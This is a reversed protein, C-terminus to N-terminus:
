TSPALLANLLHALRYGALAIRQKVIEKGQTLYIESPPKNEPTSYVWKEAIKRGESAWIEPSFAAIKDGFYNEPYHLIIEKSLSVLHHRSPYTNFLGFGSDWLKHLSLTRHSDAPYHIWYLNGGRDGNPHSASIRSATHLPQHIDGVFHILFALFRAREFRNAYVNQVVPPIKNLAWVINDTDTLNKLISGDNTFAQDIYHWHTFTEIKQSRLTDAWAAMRKFGFHHHYEQSLYRTMQNVKVRVEPTLRQYAIDAVLMHGIANWAYAPLSLFFLLCFFLLKLKMSLDLASLIAKCSM